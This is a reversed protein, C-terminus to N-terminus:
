KKSVFHEVFVAVAISHQPCAQRRPHVARLAAPCATAGELGVSWGRLYGFYGLLDGKFAGVVPCKTVPAQDSEVDDDPAVKGGDAAADPGSSCPVVRTFVVALLELVITLIAAPPFLLFLPASLM